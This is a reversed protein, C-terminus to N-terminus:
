VKKLKGRQTELDNLTERKQKNTFFKFVEPMVGNNDAEINLPIGKFSGIIRANRKTSIKKLTGPPLFFNGKGDSPSQGAMLQKTSDIIHDMELETISGPTGTQGYNVPGGILTDSQLNLLYVGDDTLDFTKDGGPNGKVTLTLKPDTFILEQENHSMSPDVTITKDTVSIKGSVTVLVKKQNGGSCATFLVIFLCVAISISLSKM